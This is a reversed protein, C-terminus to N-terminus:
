LEDLIEEGVVKRECEVWEVKHDARTTDLMLDNIGKECYELALRHAAFFVNTPRLGMITKAEILRTHDELLVGERLFVCYSKEIVDPLDCKYLPAPTPRTLLPDNINISQRRLILERTTERPCIIALLSFWAIIVILLPIRWSYTPPM